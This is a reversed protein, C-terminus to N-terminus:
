VDDTTEGQPTDSTIALRDIELNLKNIYEQMVSIKRELKQIDPTTHGTYDKLAERLIDSMNKNPSINKLEQYDQYDLWVEIRQKGAM